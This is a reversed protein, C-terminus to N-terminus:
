FLISGVVLRGNEINQDILFHRGSKELVFISASEIRTRSGAYLIYNDLRIFCLVKIEEQHCIIIWFSSCGERNVVLNNVVGSGQGFFFDFFEHVVLTVLIVTEGAWDLCWGHYLVCLFQSLKREVIVTQINIEQAVLEM